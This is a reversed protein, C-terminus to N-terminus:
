GRMGAVRPPQEWRRGRGYDTPKARRWGGEREEISGSTPAPCPRAAGAIPTALIQDGATEHVVLPPDDICIWTTTTPGSLVAAMASNRPRTAAVTAEM